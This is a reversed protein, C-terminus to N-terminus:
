PRNVLERLMAEMHNRAAITDRQIQDISARRENMFEVQRNQQWLDLVALVGLLVAFLTFWRRLTRPTM